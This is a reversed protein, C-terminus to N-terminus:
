YALMIKDEDTVEHCLSKHDSPCPHNCGYGSISMHPTNHAYPCSKCEHARSCIMIKEM